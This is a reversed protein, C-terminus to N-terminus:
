LSNSIEKVARLVAETAKEKDDLNDAIKRVFASGIVIGDAIKSFEEAQKATKIGFGVVIPLNSIKRLESIKSQVEEIQASKSGTIGAVSIYYVFGSANELVKRGREITTTPATLKIHSLEDSKIKSIFEEEEEPTLDVIIVGDVGAEVADVIFEEVGYHFVPNYYGMLIVPTTNDKKRFEKVIGITGKVTAGNKLARVAAAQIDYGDAMPDSFAMGLEVIDAGNKPLEKIIELSTDYDPDFSMVYTILATKNQIKLSEFKKEIRNM